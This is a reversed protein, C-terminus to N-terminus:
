RPALLQSAAEGKVAPRTALALARVSDYHSPPVTEFRDLLMDALMRQGEAEKSMGLVTETFRERLDAPIGRRAVLPPFGFEASRQLVRTQAAFQPRTAAMFEWVYSDVSAGDAVKEAVAEMAQGHDWTFFSTRFFSDPNEGIDQIMARPILFGSSSEPDAFAFVKGKLDALARISSDRHVIIYSRYLPKGRFVPAAILDVLSADWAQVFSYSCVWSFDLEGTRLMEIVDRYARRQVFQVPRKLRSGLYSAWRDYLSLEDRVAAATLAIRVPATAARAWSSALLACGFGAKLGAAAIGRRSYTRKLNM